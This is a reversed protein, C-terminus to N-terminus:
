KGGEKGAVGVPNGYSMPDPALTGRVEQRESPFSQPYREHLETLAKGNWESWRKETKAKELATTLATKGRDEAPFRIKQDIQDRYLILEDESLGKPPPIDYAMDAYVFYSMGQIYLAAAATDYDRYTAILQVARDDLAKREEAKTKLLIDVNKQESTTWKVVKFAEFARLLDALAGEAALARADDSVNGGANALYVQQLSAWAAQAGRTNRRKEQIKAIRYWAEVLHSPNASPYRQTYRTYFDLAENEGVQAWQAGARWFADEADAQEPYKTAYTEYTRAAAAHDGLGVRLFAANYLASPADGYDPFLKVLQDYYSISKELDLTSSYTEAIRFYLAKSREDTPNEKVYQEFLTIAKTAEGSLAYNNAANYLAEKKFKSTPYDKMFQVFSDAAGARDGKEILDFALAFAAQERIDTIEGLIRDKLAKTSGLNMAEFKTIAARVGQLNGEATLSNVYLSSAYLAEDTNPFRDILRQFRARAEDYQGHLYYVQGPIYLLAARDKNLADRWQPDTFERDSLDDAAEVFRKYGPELTYVKVEKNFATTVTREPTAGEPLKDFGGLTETVVAERCKMIQFRAGERYPSRENKLIAAYADEAGEWDQGGFLALAYYWEYEDNQAALPFQDLFERFKKAAALYDQPQGSSQARLLVEVAVTALSEEIFRRAQAIAEPNGKNAEYWKTGEAYRESLVALAAASKADDPLPMTAYTIAIKNQYVPNKPDLPWRDQLFRFTEIADDFKAQVLLIEALREVVDHEWDHEGIKALHAQAVDIPRKGQRDALDAYSIALYEVAEPRMNSVKGTEALQQDSYDLLQVLYQLARDYDNLKYYSWGLKYVAEDYNRGKPGDALVAQYYGIATPINVTPTARPGPKDFWYEGLRMNADNSFPTGPFRAVLAENVARAQEPDHQRANSASYCWALMYYTDALNEYGPYREIIQRYLGIPRTYDKLPPEPLVVNPDEAARAELQNWADNESSFQLESEEFYLDALRFMMDPTHETEPYKQLFAEIHKETERRLTDDDSELRKAVGGFTTAIRQREEAERNDVAQRVEDILEAGRARYRDLTDRFAQTEEASPADAARVPGALGLLAVIGLPRLWSRPGPGGPLHLHRSM